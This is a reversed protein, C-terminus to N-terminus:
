AKAPCEVPKGRAGINTPYVESIGPIDRVSKAGLLDRIEVLM